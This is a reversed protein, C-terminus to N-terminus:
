LLLLENQRHRSTRASYYVLSGMYRWELSKITIRLALPNHRQWFINFLRWRWPKWRVTAPFHERQGVKYSPLKKLIARAWLQGNCVLERMASYLFTHPGHKSPSQRSVSIGRRQSLSGPKRYIYWFLDFWASYNRMLIKLFEDSMWWKWFSVM